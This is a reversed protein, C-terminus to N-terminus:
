GKPGGGQLARQLRALTALDDRLAELATISAAVQTRMAEVERAAIPALLSALRAHVGSVGPVGADEPQVTTGLAPVARPWTRLTSV